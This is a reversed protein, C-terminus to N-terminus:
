ADLKRQIAADRVANDTTLATVAAATVDSRSGSVGVNALFARYETSTPQREVRAALRAAPTERLTERQTEHRPTTVPLDADADDDRRLTRESDLGSITM